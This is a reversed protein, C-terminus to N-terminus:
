SVLPVVFGGIKFRRLDNSLPLKIIFYRNTAVLPTYRAFKNLEQPLVQVYFSEGLMFTDVVVEEQVLSIICAPSRKKGILFVQGEELKPIKGWIICRFISGPLILEQKGFRLLGEGANNGAKYLVETTKVEVPMAPTAIFPFTLENYEELKDRVLAETYSLGSCVAEATFFKHTGARSAYFERVNQTSSEVMFEILAAKM